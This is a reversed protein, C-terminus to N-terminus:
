PKLAEEAYQTAYAAALELDEARTTSFYHRIHGRPDVLVLKMSHAIDILGGPQTEREGMATALGDVVFREIDTRPGTLLSWRALDLNQKKAYALLVEPTDVEPDVTVTLLRVRHSLPSAALHRQVDRMSRILDPCVTRCSTFFFSVLYPQGTLSADTVVVGEQDTLSFPQVKNLIPLPALSRSPCARLGTLALVGALAALVWPNRWVPRSAANM